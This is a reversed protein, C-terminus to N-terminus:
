REVLRDGEFAVLSDAGNVSFGALPWWHGIHATFLAFATEVPVTVTVERRIPNVPPTPTSPPDSPAESPQAPTPADLPHNM